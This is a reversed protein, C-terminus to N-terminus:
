FVMPLGACMADHAEQLSPAKALFRVLGTLSRNMSAFALEQLSPRFIVWTTRRNWCRKSMKEGMVPPHESPRPTNQNKKLRKNVKIRDATCNLRQQLLNANWKHYYATLCKEIIAFQADFLRTLSEIREDNPIQYSQRFM